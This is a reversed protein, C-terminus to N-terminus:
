LSYVARQAKSLTQNTGTILYDINLLRLITNFPTDCAGSDLPNAYIDNIEHIALLREIPRIALAAVLRPVPHKFRHNLRILKESSPTIEQADNEM